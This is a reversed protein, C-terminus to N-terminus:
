DALAAFVFQPRGDEDPSDDLTIEYGKVGDFTILGKSYCLSEEGAIKMNVGWDESVENAGINFIFKREEGPKLSTDDFSGDEKVPHEMPNTRKIKASGMFQFGFSEIERETKNILTLPTAVLPGRGEAFMCGGLSIATAMIVLAAVIHKM